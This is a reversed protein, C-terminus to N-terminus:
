TINEIHFQRLIPGFPLKFFFVFKKMGNEHLYTFIWFGQCYIKNQSWWSPTYFFHFVTMEHTFINFISTRLIEIIVELFM